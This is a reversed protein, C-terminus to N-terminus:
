TTPGLRPASPILKLHSPAVPSHHRVGNSNALIYAGGRNRRIVTFPGDYRPELKNNRAYVRLMVRTGPALPPLLPHTAAFRQRADLAARKTAISIGPYVVKHMQVIRDNWKAIDDAPIPLTTHDQLPNASRGFFLAFPSSRTTQHIRQNILFQVGPLALWWGPGNDSAIKRLLNSAIGVTREALGNARPHYPSTQRFSTTTINTLASLTSNVFERGNDSQIVRPFGIDSFILFLAEAVSEATKDLLPRLITYRSCVDVLVLVYSYPSEASSPFPGTLDIAVHDFPFASHVSQLPHFGHKGVNHQLCPNCNAVQAVCDHIMHPWFLGKSRLQRYLQQAGVHGMAHTDALLRPRQELPVIPLSLLVPATIPPTPDPVLDNTTSFLRSLHDPLINQIGPRHTVTFNYSMLEDLWNLLMPNLHKQSTMFSLAKADTYLHFPNAWLYYHCHRLAFVIGLLERKTASYNRESVSLSRAFFDIFHTTNDVIQYLCGGIGTDSADTAVHFPLDLRAPSLTPASSIVSKLRNFADTAEPTWASRLNPVKILRELPASISSYSPVFRRLYNTVGLFHQLQTTSSPIPLQMLHSAKSPDISIGTSSVVHGLVTVATRAFNCKDANLRLNVRSLRDIVTRVHVSHEELSSSFVVIDDVYCLAYPLESLVNAMVRQFKSTLPKLGFPCGIFRYQSGKWMFCLKHQDSPDVPFQNYSQRLDLTTFVSAGNLKNLMEHILPLPFRDDPLIANLPRPDICIRTSTHNGSADKKPVVLLPHNWTSNLPAKAIIGDRLWADVQKDVAPQLRFPVPYPRRFIPASSGTPLSIVADPHSCFQGPPIQINCQLASEISPYFDVPSPKISSAEKVNLSILNLSKTFDLGLLVPIEFPIPAILFSGCASRDHCRVAVDSTVGHVPTSSAGFGTISM